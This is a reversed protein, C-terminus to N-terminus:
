QVDIVRTLNKSLDYGDWLFSMELAKGVPVIRDIGKINIKEILNKILFEKTFGFYTLTQYKHTINKVLKKFKNDNLQFFFGNSGRLNHMNYQYDTLDVTYLNNSYRTISKINKKYDLIKKNLNYIKNVSDFHNLKYKEELFVNLANWFIKKANIIKKGSWIILHPSTCANQDMIYTDNYFNLVLVKLNQSSISAIIDANLISVSYRDAFSIEVGRTKIPFQKIIDITTDNGWIIRADSKISIEKTVNVNHNDYSIISITKKINDYKKLNILKNIILNIIKIESFENNSIKIINSNGLLLSIALSYAYAIPVNSPTIHFVLGVGKRIKNDTFKKKYNILNAKRCWFAFSVIDPYKKYKTILLKKSLDSLFNCSLQNFAKSSQIKIIKNSTHHKISRNTINIEQTV